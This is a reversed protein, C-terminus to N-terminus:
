IWIISGVKAEPLEKRVPHFATRGSCYPCENIMKWGNKIIVYKLPVDPAKCVSCRAMGMMLGRIFNIIDM